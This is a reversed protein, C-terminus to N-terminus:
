RPGACALWISFVWCTALLVLLLRWRWDTPPQERARLRQQYRELVTMPARRDRGLWLLFVALCLVGVAVGALFPGITSWAVAIM